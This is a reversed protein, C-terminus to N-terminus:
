SEVKLQRSSAWRGRARVAAYHVSACVPDYTAQFSCKRFRGDPWSPEDRALFGLSPVRQTPRCRGGEKGLFVLWASHVSVFFHWPPLPMRNRECYWNGAGGRGAVGAKM